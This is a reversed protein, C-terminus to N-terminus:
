TASSDLPIGSRTATSAAVLPGMEAEPDTGPGVKVKPLRDAIKAVLDDAIAGVAVIKSIAMCREGASGYGASVTADAAM